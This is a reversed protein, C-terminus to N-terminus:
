ILNDHSGSELTGDAAARELIDNYKVPNVPYQMTMGDMGKAVNEMFPSENKPIFEVHNSDEYSTQTIAPFSKGDGDVTAHICCFVTDNELATIKHRRFARTIFMAPATYEKTEAKLGAEPVEGFEVSVKGSSVLTTHDTNHYHGKYPTGAKPVKHMKVFVNHSFAHTVEIEGEYQKNFEHENDM